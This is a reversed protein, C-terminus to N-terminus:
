QNTSNYLFCPLFKSKMCLKSNSTQQCLYSRRKITDNSLSVQQIKKTSTEGWILKVMNLACPKILMEGITHPKKQKAIPLAVDFSAQMSALAKRAFINM